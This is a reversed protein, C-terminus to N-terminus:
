IWDKHARKKIKVNQEATKFTKYSLCINYCILYIWVQLELIGATQTAGAKSPIWKGAYPRLFFASPTPGHKPAGAVWTLLCSSARPEWSPGIGASVVAAM